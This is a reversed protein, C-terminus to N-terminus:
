YPRLQINDTDVTEGPKLHRKLDNAVDIRARAKVFMPNPDSATGTETRTHGGPTTVTVTYHYRPM